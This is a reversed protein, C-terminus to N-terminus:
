TTCTDISGQLVPPSSHLTNRKVDYLSKKPSQKTSEGSACVVLGGGCGWWEGGSGVVVLRCCGRLESEKELDLCVGGALPLGVSLAKGRRGFSPARVPGWRWQGGGWIGRLRRQRAEADAVPRRGLVMPGSRPRRTHKRQKDGALLGGSQQGSMYHLGVLCQRYSTLM